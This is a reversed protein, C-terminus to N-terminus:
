KVKKLWTNVTKIIGILESLNDNEYYNPIIIKNLGLKEQYKVAEVICTVLYVSTAGSDVQAPHFDYTLFKGTSLEASEKKGYFQFDILSIPLVRDMLYGSVKDKEFYDQAFSFACFIFGSGIGNKFHLDLNWNSNHGMM